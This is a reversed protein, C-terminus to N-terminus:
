GDKCGNIVLVQICQMATFCSSFPLDVKDHAQCQEAGAQKNVIETTVTNLLINLTSMHTMHFLEGKIGDAWKTKPRWWWFLNHIAAGPSVESYQFIFLYNNLNKFMVDIM